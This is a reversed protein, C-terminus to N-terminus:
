FLIFSHHVPHYTVATARCSDTETTLTDNTNTSLIDLEIIASIKRKLLAHTQKRTMNRAILILILINM